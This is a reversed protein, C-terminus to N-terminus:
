GGDVVEWPGAPIEPRRSVLEPDWHPCYKRLAAVSVRASEETEYAHESVHGATTFRSGWEVAGVPPFVAGLSSAFKTLWREAEAKVEDEAGWSRCDEMGPLATTLMYEGDPSDPGYIRFLAQDLAGVHGAHGPVLSTEPRWRIRAATEDAM